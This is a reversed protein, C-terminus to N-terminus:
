VSRTDELKDAARLMEERDSPKTGAAARLLVDSGEPRAAARLLSAATGEAELRATWAPMVERIAALIREQEEYKHQQQLLIEMQYMEKSGGVAALLGVLAIASRIQIEVINEPLWRPDSPAREWRNIVRLALIPAQAETVIASEGARVRVLAQELAACMRDTYRFSYRMAELLFKVGNAADEAPAVAMAMADLKRQHPGLGLVMMAVCGGCGLSFCLWVFEEPLFRMGFGAILVPLCGVASTLLLTAKSTKIDRMLQRIVEHRLEGGGREVVQTAESREVPDSSALKRALGRVHASEKNRSSKM